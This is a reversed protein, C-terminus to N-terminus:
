ANKAAELAKLRVWTAWPLGALAAAKKIQALEEETLLVRVPKTRLGM